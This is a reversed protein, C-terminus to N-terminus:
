RKKKKLTGKAFTQPIGRLSWSTTEGSPTKVHISPLLLPRLFFLGIGLGLLLCCFIVVVVMMIQSFGNGGFLNLIHNGANGRKTTSISIQSPVPTPAGGISTAKPSASTTVTPTLSSTPNPTPTSGSTQSTTPVPEPTQSTTPVPEPTQSQSTTPVPEPTQSPTPTPCLLLICDSKADQLQTGLSPTPCLVVVCESKAYVNKVIVLSSLGLITMLLLVLPGIVVRLSTLRVPLNQGRNPQLRGAWDFRKLDQKNKRM